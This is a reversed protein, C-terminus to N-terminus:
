DRNNEYCDGMINNTNKILEEYNGDNNITYDFSVNDLETETLHLKETESLKNDFNDRNVRISISKPYKKKLSILEDKLRVDNIIIIDYFYSYVEIDEIMRRIFLKDDINNKILEIGLNQLLSRPKTEESGDWNSIGKAYQKVYHGFSLTIVKLDSYYNNIIRAVEDKGSRAKGSVLFLKINKKKYM